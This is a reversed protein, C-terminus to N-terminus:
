RGSFRNQESERRDLSVDWRWVGDQKRLDDVRFKSGIRSGPDSVEIMSAIFEKSVEILKEEGAHEVPLFSGFMPFDGEPSIEDCDIPDDDLLRYQMGVPVEKTRIIERESNEDSLEDHLDELSM